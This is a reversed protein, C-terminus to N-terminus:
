RKNQKHPSDCKNIQLHKVLRADWSYIGSKTSYSRTTYQQIRNTLIKNLIKAGRSILSISSYSEKKTTDKDPKPNLTM